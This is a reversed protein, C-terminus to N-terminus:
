LISVVPWGTTGNIGYHCADPLFTVLVVWKPIVSTVQRHRSICVGLPTHANPPFLFLSSITPTRMHVRMVMVAMVQDRHINNPQSTPQNNNEMQKLHNKKCHYHLLEIQIDKCYTKPLNNFDLFIVATKNATDLFKLVPMCEFNTFQNM